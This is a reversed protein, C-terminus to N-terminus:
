KKYGITKEFYKSEGRVTSGQRGDKTLLFMLRLTLKVTPQVSSSLLRLEDNFAAINEKQLKRKEVVKRELAEDM